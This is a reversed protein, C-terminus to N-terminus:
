QGGGCYRPAGGTMRSLLLRAGIQRAVQLVRRVGRGLAAGVGGDGRIVRAEAGEGGGGRRSRSRHRQGVREGEGRM